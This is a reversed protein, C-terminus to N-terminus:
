GRLMHVWKVLGAAGALLVIAIVVILLVLGGRRGSRPPSPRGNSDSFSQSYGSDPSFGTSSFSESPRWKKPDWDKGSRSDGADSRDQTMGRNDFSRAAQFLGYNCPIPLRAACLMGPVVAGARHM